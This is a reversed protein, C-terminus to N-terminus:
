DIINLLKELNITTRGFNYFNENLFNQIEKDKNKFNLISNNIILDINNIDNKNFIFGFSAKVKDEIPVLDKYNEFEVNHIKKKDDFYLVPKKFLLIYEIAIGSNDTILCKANEMAKINEATVDLIFKDNIFKKKFGDLISKSRKINEPHPKFRVKFSKDLVQKIIEELNENMFNAQNSDWSPAILIEDSIKQYNIKKKLYDFYFYGSKILKKKKNKKLFERKQIENVQYDGNCLIIDYNDFADGMYQKITSVPSHFYYIYNDINKTKKITHNGLDTLTLFMNKAKIFTFFYQMLFGTGIFLNKVNLNYIKDNIDSSVYYVDDPYKKALSEILLYSYKLYSKNESYFIYKPKKSNILNINNIISFNNSINKYISFILKFM